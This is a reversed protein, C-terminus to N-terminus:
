PQTLLKSPHNFRKIQLQLFRLTYGLLIILCTASVVRETYTNSWHETNAWAVVTEPFTSLALLSVALTFVRAQLWLEPRRLGVIAAASLVALHHGVIQPFNLFVFAANWVTYEIIWKRNMAHYTMDHHRSDLDIQISRRFSPLTVVLLIGSIVVLWHSSQRGSADQIIAEIINIILLWAVGQRWWTKHGLKTHKAILMWSAALLVSYLKVWPFIGLNSNSHIWWPTLIIPVFCFFVVGLWFGGRRFIEHTALFALTLLGLKFFLIV